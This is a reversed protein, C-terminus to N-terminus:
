PKYDFGVVHKQGSTAEIEVWLRSGPAIPKAVEVHAHWGSGEEEAKAKVSGKADEAGIWMRVAAPKGTGGSVTVDFTGMGGAVVDGSQVAAVTMGAATQSGLEKKPGHDDGQDHDDGPKHDHGDGPKHDHGDGAAPKAPVQEAKKECGIMPVVMACAAAAVLSMLMRATQM